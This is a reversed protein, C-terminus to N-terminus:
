HEFIIGISGTLIEHIRILNSINVSICTCLNFCVPLSVPNHAHLSALKLSVENSFLTALQSGNARQNNNLHVCTGPLKIRGNRVSWGDTLQAKQEFTLEM